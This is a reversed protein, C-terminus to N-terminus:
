SENTQIGIVLGLLTAPYPASGKMCLRSDTNWEARFPFKPEDWESYVAAQDVAAGDKILPLPDMTDFDPGFQIAGYMIDAALLGVQTVRKRQLLATGGQAAYALKSSKYRWDYRLGVWVNSYSGGLAIVGSGNASLGTLPTHLGTAASVGWGVLGTENALHAATVSTTPGTALVGADAMANLVDTDAVGMVNGGAAESHKRVKEIFRVSSGNITRLVSIYVFDQLRGPLVCASEVSADGALSPASIFRVWALVQENSDYHLIPVQGDERVFWLYSEPQRQVAIEILGEGGIEENFKTLRTSGYDQKELSYAIEYVHVGSRQVFIGRGDIKAPSVPAVGQTSADKVTTTTPTLPQDFNSSRASAESGDTGFILRQLALMWQTQNVAGGTAINRQISGADGETVLNFATYDDSESLWFQDERAWGLRGDFFQVASPWGNADSWEGEQWKDTYTVNGFPELVEVDVSTSSNFATVRCIGSKSYGSYTFDISAAGSTYAGSLFGFRFWQELNELSPGPDFSTTGVNGVYTIATSGFGSEAGDMSRQLTLTGSWTGSIGYTFIQSNGIGRVRFSPTYVDDGALRVTESFQTHTLRFLAGVHDPQFFAADATLTTNGRTSNPKIKVSATRSVSFPGDGAVYKVLSWSADGRREIKRQQWDNHALFVIDASQDTRIERMQAESWPAALAMVGASEITISAVRVEIDSRTSFQVYYTTGTPTFALSHAGVDLDTESIYEDGGDTSGCRFTVPGRAVVINLAHGVNPSATTAAQKALATGGINACQMMLRSSGISSTASGTVTTAWYADGTHTGSQAGSTNIAAGGSSASIRFSTGAVLGASLVYYPTGATVGTPLAGTTKFYVIETGSGTFPHGSWSVVGPTAITITVTASPDNWAGNLISSSVSARTVLADDVIVRLFGDTLELVATEDVSKNFAILRARNNSRTNAVYGTGPRVLGKGVVHPLLNEQIEAALKVRTQDVRAMAARSVEGVNFAHIDANVKAM